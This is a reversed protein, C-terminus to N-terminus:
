EVLTNYKNTLETLDFKYNSDKIKEILAEISNYPKAKDSSFQTNFESMTISIFGNTNMVGNHLVITVAQWCFGNSIQYTSLKNQNSLVEKKDLLRFVECKLDLILPKVKNRKKVVIM